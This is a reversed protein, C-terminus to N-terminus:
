ARTMSSRVVSVCLVRLFSLKLIKKAYTRILIIVLKSKTTNMSYYVREASKPFLLSPRTLIIMSFICHINNM